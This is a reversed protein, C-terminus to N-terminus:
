NSLILLKGKGKSIFIKSNLGYETEEQFNEVEPAYFKVNAPDIGLKTWNINLRVDVDNDAWSGLSILVKNSKIYVTALVDKRNTTVPCNESWYGIMKSDEIGFDDWIKWVPKPNGSWPLRATMGYVMGRWPNGGGQLMEGMLGFPIGSCEILWFDPKSNYDFYEGFWLRNIYPFHELYLHASNVFGDRNNYQNASHLDILSGERNNDLIKRVRKMISRDFAVDDIYLGDIGINRSVWDLGELYYNHWRSVGSNIVAADKLSPVFWAAIYNNGLHEQLWSFGGGPGYSLIENGLSRLAFIEPAKNSLERVTYYIKVKIDKEHAEDIYEKMEVPRLFPYNIFPNIRNAHHVNIVTSGTEVIEEVPKFSHFYRNKWHGKTDITKFPTILLNFNFNLEEGARINREGSYARLKVTNPDTEFIRIGGKGNNSWSPPMNLPKSHYFNTNLPRIYNEDRFSTQIGANVDGIWAGDQNFEPDWSWEVSSPRYGGKQGLGMMYKAADKNYPIDLRIDNVKTDSVSSLKLKFGVYGDFEMRADCTLIFDGSRSEAKWSISGDNKNIIEAGINNWALKRGSGTIIDFKISSSIIDRGVELIDINEPSFYSKITTPLGNNGISLERGLCSLTNNNVKMPIFPAVIEDNLAIKSDLWRLRSHRWPEDDGKAEIKKNVVKLSINIIQEDGGDASIRVEGKYKGPKADEPVNIGCWLAQIKSKDVSCIKTMKNGTWDIGGTNICNQNEKSIVSSGSKLDTFEVSVSNIKKKYAFLGIQFAYYEGLMAEAKFEQKYERKVWRYPLDDTM